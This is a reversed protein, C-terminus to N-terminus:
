GEFAAKTIRMYGDAVAVLLFYRNQIEGFRYIFLKSNITSSKLVVTEEGVLPNPLRKSPM